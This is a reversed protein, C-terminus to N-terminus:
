ANRTGKAIDHISAIFDELEVIRRDKDEVIKSLHDIYSILQKVANKRNGQMELIASKPHM